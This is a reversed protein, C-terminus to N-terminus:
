CYIVTNSNCNNHIAPYRWSDKQPQRNKKHTYYRDYRMYIYNAFFEIKKIDRVEFSEEPYAYFTVPHNLFDFSVIHPM